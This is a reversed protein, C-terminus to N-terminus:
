PQPYVLVRDHVLLVLDPRGDNTVDEVLAERPEYNPRGNAPQHPDVEFVVFHLHSRWEGAAPDAALLEVLNREPDIAVLESVGDGDFDAPVVQGYRVGPLDTVHSSRSQLEFDGSSFPLWWFRDAGFVFCEDAGSWAGVVEIRDAPTTNVVEYVGHADPRLLTFEEGRREYLVVERSAEGARHLTTAVEAAANRANFQAVIALSDDPQLRLARAFGKAAVVLEPRGDGEVDALTVASPEVGDVLGSRFGPSDNALRFDGADTQVYVRLPDRPVFVILDSRGDQNADWWQIASPATRLKPLAVPTRAAPKGDEGPTLLEVRHAGSEETVVATLARGQDVVAAVALPRGSLPLPQPYELRDDALRAVGVIREKASAVFLEDRGDGDWDAAALSQAEALSPYVGAEALGGDGRRLYLSLQAGDADAAAVDKRGDGDFDGLAYAAASRGSVRPRFVRPRPLRDAPPAPRAQFGVVQVQGVPAAVYALASAPGDEVPVQVPLMPSIIRDLAFALEPGFTGDAAQRRVRLSGRPDRGHIYWVDLFGDADLDSVQLGAGNEDPLPFREPPALTGDDRQRYLALERLGLMVLDERGDRDLDAVALSSTVQAPEPAPTIRQERWTDDDDRYRVTLAHPAGTYVLDTRGDGDLDGVALDYLTIGATVSEKRFRADEVVPEWRHRRLSRQPEAAGAGDANQLLLVVTARDNNLLALDRRGDGDFDASRLSRINWDLKTIEPGQLAPGAAAGAATSIFALWGTWWGRPSM